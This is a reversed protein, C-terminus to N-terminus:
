ATLLTSQDTQGLRGARVADRGAVVGDDFVNKNLYKSRTDKIKKTGFGKSLETFAEKVALPTIVMLAVSQKELERKIGEIYGCTFSDYAIKGFYAKLCPDDYLEKNEKRKQNALKSGVKYLRQFVVKAAFADSEYGYFVPYSLARKKNQKQWFMKCRFNQAVINALLQGWYMVKGVESCAVTEIKEPEEGTLEEERVNHEAILQQAKLAFQIAEAETAGKDTTHELLKKIKDIISDRNDTM